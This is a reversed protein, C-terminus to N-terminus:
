SAVSSATTPLPDIREIDALRVYETHDCTPPPYHPSPIGIKIYTEALLNMRPYRIEYTRGDKVFVRFPRFPEQKLAQRLQERDM